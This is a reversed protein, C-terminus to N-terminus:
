RRPSSSCSCSLPRLLSQPLTGYLLLRAYSPQVTLNAFIDVPPALWGALALWGTCPALTSTSHTDASPRALGPHNARVHLGCATCSAALLFFPELTMGERLWGTADESLCQVACQVAGQGKRGGRGEVEVTCWGGDVWGRGERKDMDKNTQVKQRAAPVLMHATSQVRETSEIRGEDREKSAGGEDRAGRYTPLYTGLYTDHISGERAARERGKDM